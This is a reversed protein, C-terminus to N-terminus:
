GDMAGPYVTDKDVQVECGAPDISIDEKPWTIAFVNQSYHIPNAHHIQKCTWLEMTRYIPDPDVSLLVMIQDANRASTSRSRSREDSRSILLLDYIQLRIEVPLTLFTPLGSTLSTVEINNNGKAENTPPRSAAAAPRNGYTIARSRNQLHRREQFAVDVKTIM